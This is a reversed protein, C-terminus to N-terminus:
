SELGAPEAAPEPAAGRFTEVVPSSAFARTVRVLRTVETALDDGAPGGDDAAAPGGREAVPADGRGMAALGAAIQSAEVVAALEEGALGAAEGRERALAAVRPSVYPAVTLRGDSIEVVRRLLRLRV